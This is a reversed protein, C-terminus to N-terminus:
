IARLKRRNGVDTGVGCGEAREMEKGARLGIGQVCREVGQGEIGNRTRGTMTLLLRCQRAAEGM